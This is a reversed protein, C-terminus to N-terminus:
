VWPCGIQIPLFIFHVWERYLIVTFNLNSLINIIKLPSKISKYPYNNKLFVISNDVNIDVILNTKM